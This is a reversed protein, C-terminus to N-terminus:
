PTTGLKRLYSGVAWGEKASDYPNVLQWWTYGDASTPGAIVSFVESEVGLVVIEASLSPERRLRLGDGGTGSVEVLDGPAFGEGGGAPVSPAPTVTPGVATETAPPKTPTESPLRVVTFVPTPVTGGSRMPRTLAGALILCGASGLGIIVGGLVVLRNLNMGPWVGGM